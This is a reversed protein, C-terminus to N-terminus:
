FDMTTAAAAAFFFYSLLSEATEADVDTAMAAGAMTVAAAFCSLYSSYATATETTVEADADVM